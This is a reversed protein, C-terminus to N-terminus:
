QIHQQILQHWKQAVQAEGAQTLSDFETDYFRISEDAKKSDKFAIVLEIRDTVTSNGDRGRITRSKTNLTCKQLEPIYFSQKVLEDDFKRLVFVYGNTIDIGISNENWIDSTNIRTNKEAALSVLGQVLKKERQKRNIYVLVFPVACALVIMIGVLTSGLDM